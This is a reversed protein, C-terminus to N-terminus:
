GASLFGSPKWMSSHNFVPYSHRDTVYITFNSLHLTPQAKLQETSEPQRNYCQRLSQRRRETMFHNAETAVVVALAYMCLAAIKVLM